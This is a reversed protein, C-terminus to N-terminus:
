DLLKQFERIQDHYDTIATIPRILRETVSCPRVYKPLTVIRNQGDAITRSNPYEPEPTSWETRNTRPSPASPIGAPGVDMVFFIYSVYDNDFQAPPPYGTISGDM